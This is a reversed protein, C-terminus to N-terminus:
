QKKQYSEDELEEKCEDCTAKDKESVSVWMNGPPWLNPQLLSFSCVAFGNKLIHVIPFYKDVEAMIIKKIQGQTM